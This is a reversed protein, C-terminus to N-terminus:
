DASGSKKLITDVQEALSLVKQKVPKEFSDRWQERTLEQRLFGEVNFFPHWCILTRTCPLGFNEKRCYSFHIQHGLRACRIQFSDGPPLITSKMM